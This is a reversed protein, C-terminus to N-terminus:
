TLRLPLSSLSRVFNNARWVPAGTLEIKTVKNALATTIAEGEARAVMQGICAHLGTGFTMNGPLKRNIDYRTPEAWHEPDLNASAYSLMVKADAPIKVGLVETEAICTRYFHHVPANLRLAEDFGSRALKPDAKLKEFESPNTALSWVTTGIAAITADMGAALFARVLMIAEEETIEGSDVQKYVAEGFGKPDLSERKCAETVWPVTDAGRKMWERTRENDPGSANFTMIGYDIIKRRDVSKLGVARPFVGISFEEALDPIADFERRDLLANVISDAETQFMPKFSNVVGPTMTRMMATRTKTHYPPDVELIISPKRWNEKVKYDIIGTGRSSVFQEPRALIERIVAHRGTALVSYRPVYVFDGKERLGEYFTASNLLCEESYPDVDWSAVGDPKAIAVHGEITNMKNKWM